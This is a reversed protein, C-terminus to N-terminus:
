HCTKMLACKDWLSAAALPARSNVDYRTEFSLVTWWRISRWHLSCFSSQFTRYVIEYVTGGCVNPDLFDRGLAADQRCPSFDHFCNKFCWCSIAITADWVSTLMSSSVRQVGEGPRLLASALGHPQCQCATSFDHPLHFHETTTTSTSAFGTQSLGCTSSM